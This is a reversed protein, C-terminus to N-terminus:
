RRARRRARPSRPWTASSSPTSTRADFTGRDVNKPASKEYLKDFAESPAGQEPTGPATGRLGETAEAGSTRPCSAPSSATRSSRRRRTGTARECWRRASRRRLDGPLRHDRVRRPQGLRDARGRLQLEAARPRLHVREGIKGGKGEWAQAFADASARRRLLRQPRRRQDDQGASRRAPGGDGGGADTGPPQRGAAGPEPLRRGRDATLESSTSAPSIQLIKERITVSRAVPITDTSAWAGAICTAGADALKRAAAVAPQPKTQEDEHQIKVTHDVGAEQIAKEIEDVALNAAKRGPPGFPSLDGTLPVIDGITLNLTKEGGGGGDDGGCAALGVTAALVVAALLLPYREQSEEFKEGRERHRELWSRGHARRLCVRNARRKEVGRLRDASPPSRGSHSPLPPKGAPLGVRGGPGAELSPADAVARVLRSGVIVGDAIEGVQACRSPPRRRRLRGRGAREGGRPGARGGDRARAAARQARRHRGTM